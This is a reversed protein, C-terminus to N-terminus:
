RPATFLYSGAEYAPSFGRGAPIEELELGAEDHLWSWDRGERRQHRFEPDAALYAEARQVRNAPEINKLHYLNVPLTIRRRVGAPALGCHIPKHPYVASPNALNILRRRPKKAAWQGDVRYATPTWMERLPFGIVDRRHARELAAPVVEAARDEIREDPDIFLVWTAGRDRCLRRQRSRLEGEHGWPGTRPVDVRVFEDVWPALNRVLGDVLSDPEDRVAFTATIHPRV